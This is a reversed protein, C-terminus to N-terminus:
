LIQQLQQNAVPPYAVCKVTIHLPPSADETGSLWAPKLRTTGPLPCCSVSSETSIWASQLCAAHNIQNCAIKNGILFLFFLTYLFFAYKERSMNQQYSSYDIRNKSLKCFMSM